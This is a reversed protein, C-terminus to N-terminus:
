QLINKFIESSNDGEFPPYGSLFIYLIIGLSWVDCAKDYKQKLVEPAVYYPTGVVTKLDVKKLNDRLYERGSGARQGFRKSLGFDILKIEADDSTDSLLFNEPKLDRHCIMQEHLHKVAGLIKRMYNAARRESFRESKVIKEFLEGGEALEMVIHVYRHDIYSEHFKIINPHDM